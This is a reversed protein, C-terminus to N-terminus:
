HAQPTTELRRVDYGAAEIRRLLAAYRVPDVTPSRSLIWLYEREPQGVAALTYDPDIDFVWYPAWVASLWSLWAPAFRVELTSSGEPGTRRAVGKADIWTGDQKLCRNFVEISNGIPRYRATTDSVCMAQYRNPYKAIEYWVGAYRQLDLQAVPRLPVAAATATVTLLTLVLIIARM